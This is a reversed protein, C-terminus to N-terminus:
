RPQRLARLWLALSAGFAFLFVLVAATAIRAPIQLMLSLPPTSLLLGLTLTMLDAAVGRAPWRM